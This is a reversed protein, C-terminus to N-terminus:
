VVPVYDLADETQIEMNIDRQTAIPKYIVISNQATLILDRIKACDFDTDFAHPGLASLDREIGLTEVPYASHMLTALLGTRVADRAYLEKERRVTTHRLADLKPLPSSSASGTM